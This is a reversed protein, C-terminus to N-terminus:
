LNRGGGRFGGGRQILGAPSVIFQQGFEKKMRRETRKLTGPSLMERVHYLVAWDLAQRTYWLNIFPSNDLVLRLSDEGADQVEGRLFQQVVTFSRGVEGALPGALTEVFSNGFRNVQGFLFDGFIGAGGGQILAAFFTEKKSLDRPMRGKAIDKLSMALYGFTLCSVASQVLGPVDATLSAMVGRSAMQQQIGGRIWRRGGINRHLMGIPFSKFQMAARLFEGELTGPRTGQRMTAMTKADAELVASKSEDAYMALVDTRLERKTRDILRREALAFGEPNNRYQKELRGIPDLLHRRMVDDPIHDAMQPTLLRKGDPTTDAMLRMLEWREPGFGHYHLLAATDAPLQDYAVDVLSGLKKANWMSVAAKGAESVYNLGSIKFLKNQLYSMSGPMSENVDFRTGLENAFDEVFAGVQRAVERERGKYQKFYGGLGELIQEGFTAGNVRMNMAVTFIDSVSTLAAGGLKSLTQTARAVSTYRFVTPNVSWRTEGTLEAFWKAVNGSIGVRGSWASRLQELEKRQAPPPDFGARMDAVLRREQEAIISRLMGEPNPGFMEMLSLKSSAGEMHHKMIELVGGRGYQENYRIFSDADKFHFVRHNGLSSAMNRPGSHEGREIATPGHDRGITINDYSEGLIGRVADADGALDPFSRELDLSQYITNIWTERASLGGETRKLIKYPDHTQPVYGELRGIFAGADNMRQRTKEMHSSFVEGVQRAMADGTSGPSYMERLINDHLNKDARIHKEFSPDIHELDNIMGGIFDFLIARRSADVSKRAGSLRKNSGVLIAELADLATFGESRATEIRLDLADRKIINIATQKKALARQVLEDQMRDQWAQALAEDANAIKGEAQKAEIRKKDQMLAEVVATAEGDTLGGAKAAAICDTRTVM